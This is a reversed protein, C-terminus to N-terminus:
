LLTHLRAAFASWVDPNTLMDAAINELIARLSHGAKRIISLNPESAALQSKITAIHTEVDSRRAPDSDLDNLHQEIKDVVEGVDSINISATQNFASSHQAINGINGWFHHIVLQNVREPAVPIANAPAEGADPNEAEIDMTFDLVRSLVVTIIRSMEIPSIRTYLRYAPMDVVKGKLLFKLHSRDIIGGDGTSLAKVTAIGERYPFSEFLYRYKEEILVPAIPYDAVSHNGDTFSAYSHPTVTRYPPIEADEPYGNLEREVWEALSDSQLRRALIKCKRLVTEVDVDRSSLEQQIERLLTMSM